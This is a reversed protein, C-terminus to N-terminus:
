RPAPLDVGGPTNRQYVVTSLVAAEVIEIMDIDLWHGEMRKGDAGVPPEAWFRDCGAIHRSHATVIGTFGTIKCRVRDGLDVQRNSM